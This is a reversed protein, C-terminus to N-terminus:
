HSLLTVSFYYSILLESLPRKNSISSKKLTKLNMVQTFATCNRGEIGLDCIKKITLVLNLLVQHFADRQTGSHSYTHWYSSNRQAQPNQKM